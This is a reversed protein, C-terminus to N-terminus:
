FAHLQDLGDRAIVEFTEVPELGTPVSQPLYFAQM